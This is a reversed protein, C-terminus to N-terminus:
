DEVKEEDEKNTSNIGMHRSSQKLEKEDNAILLLRDGKKIETEGDPILYENGRKIMVVLTHGILPLHRLLSGNLLSKKTIEIECMAGKMDDPFDIHFVKQSLDFPSEQKLIRAVWPVMSGQLLLSLLTIFFVINFIMDAGNINATLPYTAFIIPVAGRIGTWSIFLKDKFSFKGTFALCIFVAAPRGIFILFVGIILAPVAFSIMQKPNALLGLALFTIIQFLWALDRVFSKVARHHIFKHNGVVLGCVYVALFGNGYIYSTFAYVFFGCSLLLIPYLSRNTLNIRDLLKAGVIGLLYGVGFGIILQLFLNLLTQWGSIPTPSTIISILTITFLYAMPDNCGSEFELLTQTKSRINLNKGRLISFISASDTSSIVAALLFCPLLKFEEYTGTWKMLLWIFGGTIIATLAVGFTALLAGPVIVKRVDALNTDLGGSLLIIVLAMNGIFQASVPTNTIIGLGGQGVLIGIVIFLLLAPIGLKSGPKCALVSIFLLISGLLFTYQSDIIMTNTYSYIIIILCGVKNIHKISCDIQRKKIKVMCPTYLSIIYSFQMNLKFTLLFLM